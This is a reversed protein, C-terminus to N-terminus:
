PTIYDEICRVFTLFAGTIGELSTLPAIVYWFTQFANAGLNM